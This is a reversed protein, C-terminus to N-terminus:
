REPPPSLRAHSYSRIQDPTLKVNAYSARENIKMVIARGNPHPRDRSDVVDVLWGREVGDKAGAAVVIVTGDGAAEVNIIRARVPVVSRVPASQIQLKSSELDEGEPLEVVLRASADGVDSVYGVRVDSRSVFVSMGRKIEDGDEIAITVVLADDTPEVSLIRRALQQEPYHAPRPPNCGRNHPGFDHCSIYGTPQTTHEPIVITVYRLIDARVPPEDGDLGDDGRAAEAERVYDLGEIVVPQEPERAPAPQACSTTTVIVFPAAFRIRRPM